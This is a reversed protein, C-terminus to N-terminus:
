PLDRMRESRTVLDPGLVEGDPNMLLFRNSVPAPPDWQDQTSAFGYRQLFFVNAWPLLGAREVADRVRADDDEQGRRLRVNIVLAREGLLSEGLDRLRCALELLGPDHDLLHHNVSLKLTLPTGLRLLWAQLKDAQRPVAVGNTCLVLHTVRPHERSLRVFEWFRPHITPEGGELQVQFPGEAPLGALFAETSLWTNGSPSSCTSCWPCSRNCHNTLAVYVRQPRDPTPHDLPVRSLPASATQELM